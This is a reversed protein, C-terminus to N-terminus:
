KTTVTKYVREANQASGPEDILSIALQVFQRATETEAESITVTGVIADSVSDYEDRLSQCFIDMPSPGADELLAPDEVPMLETDIKYDYIIADYLADWRTDSDVIERLTAIIFIVTRMDSLFFKQLYAIWGLRNQLWKRTGAKDRIDPRAVVLEQFAKTIGSKVLASAVSLLISSFISYIATM